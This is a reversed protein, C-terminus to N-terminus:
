TVLLHRKRWQDIFIDKAEVYTRSKFLHLFAFYLVAGAVVLLLFTAWDPLLPTLIMDLLFVCLAMLSSIGLLPLLGALLEKLSIDVLRGAFFFNPYANIFVAVAYGIAVGVLGWQLGIVIGLILNFRLIIGLKFQLDARGQSLYLNGNLSVISQILGVFCLIRLVPIMALWQDGFIVPVFKSATVFVGLMIPFAFLAVIRTLQLFIKKVRRKNEQIMSFSPFMVRAIVRSINALPFLMVSYARNYIGLPDPGLFRGILVYDINRVAYNLTTTAFLSTSFGLLEKVAEWNFMFKPRWSSTIWLLLATIASLLMAQIALSWVGFGLYALAIAVVGSITVSIIEVVSLRRFELTKMLLTTQVINLSSIIFNFSLFTALPLLLPEEYFDAILPAALVFLVTLLLGLGINIWFVSSLHKEEVDDKQVIAGGFGMEAFITAFGTIITVMAVMGFERPSLLRALIVGVVFVVMQRGLQSGLSWTVGTLTKQRLDSM